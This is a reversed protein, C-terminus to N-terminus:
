TVKVCVISLLCYVHIYASYYFPNLAVIVNDLFFQILFCPLPVSKYLVSSLPSHLFCSVVIGGWWVRKPFYLHFYSSLSLLSTSSSLTVLVIIWFRIWPYSPHPTCKNKKAPHDVYCKCLVGPSFFNMCLAWFSSFIGKSFTSGNDSWM